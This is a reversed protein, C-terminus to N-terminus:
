LATIPWPEDLPFTEKSEVFVALPRHAEPRCLFAGRGAWSIQAREGWLETSLHEQSIFAAACDCELDSTPFTKCRGLFGM